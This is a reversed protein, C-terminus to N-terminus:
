AANRTHVPQAMTTAGASVRYLATLTRAMRDITFRERVLSRAATATEPRQALQLASRVGDAIATVSRTDIILGTEGHRVYSAPGGRQPAVVPLGAAMAEVIALGFEEKDSGCVYAGDAGIHQGWGQRAAALILAVDRNPRHGLLVVRDRLSPEQDLIQGIRALEAAEAPSPDDLDGGVIVLNARGALAGDEAFAAVVRAMGKVAHMRGVSLALPLGHREAPLQGIAADLDALVAAPESARVIAAARDAVNTDVGEAVIASRPPGALLDIGTLDAMEAHADRRPFLALERAETALHEVVDTRLWLAGRADDSGFSARDIRAAEEDAAIHVHPDPALTFVTPVGLRRAVEAAAVSGPDAMRLHLVDPIPDSLLTSLIGRRAAVLSPWLSMFSGGEGPHLPVGAFRQDAAPTAEAPQPGAAVADSGGPTPDARGITLVDAVRPQRALSHGLSTLLTAVGGVDGVGATSGGGDLVAGLHVQAVRVGDRHDQRRIPGRRRLARAARVGRVADAFWGPRTARRRLPAPIAGARDTFAEIAALRVATAERADLAVSTLHLDAVEGRFLGITEVLWRRAREDTTTRLQLVLTDLVTGPDRESWRALAVQAHMGLVGGRPVAAVLTDILWPTPPRDAAAWAAHEVFGPRGDFALRALESAARDGPIAGLARVAALGTVTDGDDEIAELVPLLLDESAAGARVLGTTVDALHPRLRMAELISPARRVREIASALQLAPRASGHLLQPVVPTPPRVQTSRLLDVMVPEFTRDPM